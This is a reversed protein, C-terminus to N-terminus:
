ELAMTWTRGYTESSAADTIAPYGTNVLARGGEIAKQPSTETDEVQIDIEFRTDQQNIQKGPLIAGDKIPAGLSSLDGSLPQM